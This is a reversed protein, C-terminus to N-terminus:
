YGQIQKPFYDECTSERYVDLTTCHLMGGFPNVKDYPIEVIEFGLDSLQQCYEPEHPDCFITQEDFSLTNMGLWSTGKAVKCHSVPNNHVHTHKVSPVLEWDNKRCLEILEPNRPLWEPNVICLGPRLPVFTTDIHWPHVNHHQGPQLPWPTDFEALHVRMGLAAFTRKVWDFGARNTVSSALWIIDKGFRMCDAADWLPEKESLQFEWDHLKQRKVEDSWLNNFDNFYDKVYSEDSLMPVPASIYVCDPDERFYREFTPRLNYVEWHRSRRSVAADIITNGHVLAVDRINAAGYATQVTWGLPSSLPKNFMFDQVDIRDVVVGRKALQAEFHDMQENAAAIMEQPYPGWSGFPYGGSTMDDEWWSPDPATVNTGEPRGMIVRRLPSWEDWSNVLKTM